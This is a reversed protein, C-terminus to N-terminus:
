PLKGAGDGGAGGTAGTGSGRGPIQGSNIIDQISGNTVSGSGSSSGGDSPNSPTETNTNSGGGSPQSEPKTDSLLSASVYAEGDGWVIRYWGNATKGTVHPRSLYELSGIKEYNTGDGNRLNCNKIAYMDKDLEEIIEIGTSENLEKDATEAEEEADKNAQTIEDDLPADESGMSGGATTDTEEVPAQYGEITGQKFNFKEIGSEQQLAIVLMEVAEAKTLGEDWRTESTILGKDKAVILAKYLDTPLGNDPNQLAYTLEYSKWYDKTTDFKQQSAIDGGDKADDFTVGKTDVAKLDDAFYRSVLSYIAEARTITGNYTLNNLSKSTIDLYSSDAVGQAYVNLDSKGVATEFEKNATLESVPTEARFLMAMFENRQLTADANCYNTENDPLLNFYGNIGMYVAKMENEIDTDVYQNGVAESLEIISSENELFKVFERNHLAVRLTNNPENKGDANVYLIGNKGTETNTIGLTDDWAKRLVDNTDLLALQEWLIQSEEGQEEYIPSAVEIEIQEGNQLMQLLESQSTAACGMLQSAIVVMTLTPIILRKVSMFKGSM